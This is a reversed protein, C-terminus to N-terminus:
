RASEKLDSSLQCAGVLATCEDTCSFSDSAGEGEMGADECINSFITTKERSLQWSYRYSELQNSLNWTGFANLGFECGDDGVSTDELALKAADLMSKLDELVQQRKEQDMSTAECHMMEYQRLMHGPKLDGRAINRLNIAKDGVPKESVIDFWSHWALQTTEGAPDHELDVKLTDMEPHLAGYHESLLSYMRLVRNSLTEDKGLHRDLDDYRTQEPKAGPIAHVDIGDYEYEMSSEGEDFPPTGDKPLLPRTSIYEMGASTKNAGMNTSTM